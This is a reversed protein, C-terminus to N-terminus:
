DNRVGELKKQRLLNKAGENILLRVVESQNLKYNQRRVADIIRREAETATFTVCTVKKM